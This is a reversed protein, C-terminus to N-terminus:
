EVSMIAAEIQEFSPSGTLRREGGPGTVIASPETPIRLEIARIDDEELQEAVEPEELDRQWQELNLNLIGKALEDLYEQTIGRQEAEAQNRFALDIFQWQQGQLGAAVAGYATVGIARETMSWHRYVLKVEGSRVREAILPDISERQFAACDTCQLDNFVEITVPANDPGLRADLQPIGGILKRVEGAHDIEIPDVDGEDLSLSAIVGLGILAILAIVIVGIPRPGRPSAAESM